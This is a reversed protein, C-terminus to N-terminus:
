LNNVSLRVESIHIPLAIKMIENSDAKMEKSYEKFSCRKLVDVVMMGNTGIYTIVIDFEDIDTVDGGAAAASMALAEFEDQPLEIEGEFEKRSSITAYPVDSGLVYASSKDQKTTYKISMVAFERGLMTVKCNKGLYVVAM